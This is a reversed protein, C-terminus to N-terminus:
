FPMNYNINISGLQSFLKLIAHTEERNLAIIEEDKDSNFNRLVIFGDSDLSAESFNFSNEKEAKKTTVEREFRKM